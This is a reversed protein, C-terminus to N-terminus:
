SVIFRGLKVNYNIKNSIVFLHKYQGDDFCVVVNKNRLSATENLEKCRAITEYQLVGIEDIIDDSLVVPEPFLTKDTTVPKLHDCLENKLGSVDGTEIFDM